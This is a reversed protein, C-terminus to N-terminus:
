RTNVKGRARLMIQPESLQPALYWCHPLFRTVVFLAVIALIGIGCSRRTEVNEDWLQRLEDFEDDLGLPLEAEVSSQGSQKGGKPTKSAGAQTVGGVTHPRRVGRNPKPTQVQPIREEPLPTRYADITIQITNAIFIGAVVCAAPSLLLVLRIM